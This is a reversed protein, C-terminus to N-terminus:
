DLDCFQGWEDYFCDYIIKKKIKKISIYYVILLIIIAIMYYLM